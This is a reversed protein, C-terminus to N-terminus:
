EVGRKEHGTTYETFPLASEKEGVAQIFYALVRKTEVKDEVTFDLRNHTLNIWKNMTGHLSLPVSNYIINMCHDCNLAVPLQKKYRDTLYATANADSGCVCSSTTRVVCNATIMMPLHGYIIKEAFGKPCASLM